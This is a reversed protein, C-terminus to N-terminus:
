PTADAPHIEFGYGIVVTHGERREVRFTQAWIGLLTKVQELTRAHRLYQAFPIRVTPVRVEIDILLIPRRPHTLRLHFRARRLHSAALHRLLAVPPPTATTTAHM